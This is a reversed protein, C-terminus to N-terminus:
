ACPPPYGRPFEGLAYVKYKDQVAYAEWERQCHSLPAHNITQLYHVMEHVIVSLEDPNEIYITVGDDYWGHAPCDRGRAADVPCAHEVIWEHTQISLAPPYDPVPYGSLTVAWAWLAAYWDPIM